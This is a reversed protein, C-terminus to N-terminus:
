ADGDETEFYSRGTERLTHRARALLGKVSKGSRRMVVAIEAVSLEELCQLLLAERQDYPLRDVLERIAELRQRTEVTEHLDEVANTPSRERRSRKRLVDAVKRRSIGFLWLRPDGKVRHLERFAAVFTEQTVDEADERSPIRRSVYAYVDGFYLSRLAEASEPRRAHAAPAAARASRGEASIM